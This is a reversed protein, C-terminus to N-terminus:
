SSLSQLSSGSAKERFPKCFYLAQLVSNSYCTNGFQFFTVNLVVLSSSNFFTEWPRDITLHRKSEICLLKQDFQLSRRNSLGRIIKRWKTVFPDINLVVTATGKLCRGVQQSTGRPSPMLHVLCYTSLTVFHFHFLSSAVVSSSHCIIEVHNQLVLSHAILVHPLLLRFLM